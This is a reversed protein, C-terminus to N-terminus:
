KVLQSVMQSIQGGRKVLNVTVEQDITIDSTNLVFLYQNQITFGISSCYNM